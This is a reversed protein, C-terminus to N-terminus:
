YTSLRPPDSTTCRALDATVADHAIAIANAFGMTDSGGHSKVVLGQLGLFIAGNHQRPDMRERLAKPRQRAFGVGLKAAFSSTFSDRLYAAVQKATGM